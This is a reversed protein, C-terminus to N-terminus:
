RAQIQQHRPSLTRVVSTAALSPLRILISRLSVPLGSLELLRHHHRCSSCFFVDGHRATDHTDHHTTTAELDGACLSSSSSVSLNVALSSLTHRHGCGRRPVHVIRPRPLVLPPHQDPQVQPVPLNPQPPQLRRYTLCPPSESCLPNIALYKPPEASFHPRVIYGGFEQGGSVHNVGINAPAIVTIGPSAVSTTVM